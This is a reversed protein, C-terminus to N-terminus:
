RCRSTLRTTRRRLSCIISSIQSSDLPLDLQL